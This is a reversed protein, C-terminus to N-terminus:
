QGIILSNCTFFVFKWSFCRGVVSAAAVVHYTISRYINLHPRLVRFHLMQRPDPDKFIFWLPLSSSIPSVCCSSSVKWKLCCRFWCNLVHLHVLSKLFPNSFPWLKNNQNRVFSDHVFAKLIESSQMTKGQKIDESNASWKRFENQGGDRGLDKRLKSVSDQLVLLLPPRLIAM